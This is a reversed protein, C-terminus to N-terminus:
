RWKATVRECVIMKFVSLEAVWLLTTVLVVTM